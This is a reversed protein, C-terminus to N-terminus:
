APFLARGMLAQVFVAITVVSWIITAVVVSSRTFSPAYRSALWGILPIGQMAHLGIFHAVRLDGGTRSWGFFFSGNIDSRVGGVWHGPQQSMYVGTISGLTVGAILGIAIAFRLDPSVVADRARLILWGVWGSVITSSLIALGMLAYLVMGAGSANDYHSAAAQSGRYTIYAIELVLIASVFVAAFRVSKRKRDTADLYPWFLALTLLFIVGSSQFKLPKIWANIGNFMRTDILLGVFSPIMMAALIAAAAVLMPERRYFNRAAERLSLPAEPRIAQASM